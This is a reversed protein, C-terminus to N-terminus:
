EGAGPLRPRGLLVGRVAVVGGTEVGVGGMSVDEGGSVFGTGTATVGLLKELHAAYM